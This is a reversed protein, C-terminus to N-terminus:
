GMNRSVSQARGGARIDKHRVEKTYSVGGAGGRGGERGWRPQIIANSTVFEDSNQNNSCSIFFYNTKSM